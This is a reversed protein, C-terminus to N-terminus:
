NANALWGLETPDKYSKKSWVSIIKVYGNICGSENLALKAAM